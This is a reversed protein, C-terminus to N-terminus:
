YNSLFVFIAICLCILLQPSEHLLLKVCHGAKATLQAM